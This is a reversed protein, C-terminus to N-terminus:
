KGASWASWLNDVPRELSYAYRLCNATGGPSGDWLAVIKHAQDVMWENRVQMKSPSYGGDCVIVVEAARELIWDYVKRSEEPWSLEQGKFPVAAVLPVGCAIAAKAWATDWGLAMGSIARDPQERRIYRLAGRMLRLGIEPGYGGLKDPRHGTAAIIM